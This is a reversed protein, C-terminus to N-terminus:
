IRIPRNLKNKLFEIKNLKNLSEFNNPITINLSKAFLSIAVIKDESINQELDNLCSFIQQQLEILMGGLAKKYLIIEDFYNSSVNDINKIFVIDSDLDNLNELLAGHGAQR